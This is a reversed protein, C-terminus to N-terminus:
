TADGKTELASAKVSPCDVSAHNEFCHICMPTESTPRDWNLANCADCDCDCRDAWTDLMKELKRCRAELEKIRREGDTVYKM